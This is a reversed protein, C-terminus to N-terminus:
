DNQLSGYGSNQYLTNQESAEDAKKVKTDAKTKAEVKPKTDKDIKYNSQAYDDKLYASLPMPIFKAPDDDSRQDNVTMLLDLATATYLAQDSMHMVLIAGNIVKGRKDYIGAKIENVMSELDPQEYDHTSYSGSVIYQYNTDYLAKFGAKSITLTPPRFYPKFASTGDEHRIDGVVDHLKAYAMGYDTLYNAYAIDYKTNDMPKHFESHSAVDQGDKAIARLLNPNNLVNHTLVFFTGKANHKRLVYLLHNIAVDTGWDDFTFFVVPKDTHIKGTLDRYRKEEVNFGYVNDDEIAHNGIYREDIFDKFNLDDRAIKYDNGDTPYIKDKAAFDYLDDKDALIDGISTIAYASDNAKNVKPDDYFSNYAINDVKHRKVLDMVNVVLNDDNYYDLRFYVIWGRGVSYVFKGFQEKMVDDASTYNQHKSNVINVTPAYLQYGMAAVAEKTDDTIKGWPQMVINTQVGMKALQSQVNEIQRCTTYYDSNKLSRLGIAVENGSNIIDQILKPNAKLENEMVFFTGKAGSQHLYDLTKYVVQPKSLGAFVFAVAQDTTYIMRQPQALKHQNQVRLAEFDTTAAYARSFILNDVAKGFQKFIMALNGNDSTAQPAPQAQPQAAPQQPQTQNPAPQPTLIDARKIEKLETVSATTINRAKIAKFLRETVDVINEHQPAVNNNQSLNLNPQKDVAPEEDVESAQYVVANVPTGVVLSVISGQPVSNIFNVADADTKVADKNVFIDTKVASKLGSAAAMKLLPVVYSTDPAKFLTPSKGTIVNMVKQTKILQDLVSDAPLKDLRQLGTYTYNGLYVHKASSLLLLTDKNEACNSGEVFFTVNIDYEDTLDVLRKATVPDPMGDFTLAILNKSPDKTYVTAPEINNNLVDQAKAVESDVNYESSLDPIDDYAQTQGGLYWFYYLLGAVAIVIAGIIFKTKIKLIWNM